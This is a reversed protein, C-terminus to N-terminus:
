RGGYNTGGCRRIVGAWRRLVDRAGAYEEGDKVMDEFYKAGVFSIRFVLTCLWALSGHIRTEIGVVGSLGFM